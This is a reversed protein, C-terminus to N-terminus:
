RRGLEVVHVIDKFMCRNDLRRMSWAKSPSFPAIRAFQEYTLWIQDM